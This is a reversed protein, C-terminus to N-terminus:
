IPGNAVLTKMLGEFWSSRKDPKILLVGPYARFGMGAVVLSRKYSIFAKAVTSHSYFILKM